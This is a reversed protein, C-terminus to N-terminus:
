DKITSKIVNHTEPLHFDRFWVLLEEINFILLLKVNLKM